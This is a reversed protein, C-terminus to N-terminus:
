YQYDLCSRNCVFPRIYTNAVHVHDPHNQYTNLADENELETILAMDQTSASMPEEIFEVHVLGPVKGVLSLLNEKMDKKLGAKEEEKINEKFSWMVIHKVM